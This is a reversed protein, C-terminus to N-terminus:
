GGKGFGKTSNDITSHQHTLLEIFLEEAFAKKVIAHRKTKKIIGRQLRLLAYGLTLTAYRFSVRPGNDTNTTTASYACFYLVVIPM